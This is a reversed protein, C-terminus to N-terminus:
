PYDRRDGISFPSGVHRGVMRWLLLALLCFARALVGLVAVLRWCIRTWQLV